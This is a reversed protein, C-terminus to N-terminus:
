ADVHSCYMAAVAVAAAVAAVAVVAEAGGARRCGRGTRPPPESGGAVGRTAEARAGEMDPGKPAAGVGWAMGHWAM